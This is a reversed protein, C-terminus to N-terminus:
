YHDLGARDATRKYVPYLAAMALLSAASAAVTALLRQEGTTVVSATAGEALVVGVTMIATYRWYPCGRIRDWNAAVMAVVGLLFELSTLQVVLALAIAVVFGLITGGARQLAKIWGDQLYPQMVVFYTMLLWAGAHALGRDVVIWASIGALLALIVGYAGARVPNMAEPAKHPIRRRVLAGLLVGFLAAAAVTLGVEFASADPPESVIFGVTIPVLTVASSIGALAAVGMGIGCGAMLLAAFIPSAAAPVALAAGVALALAALVAPRVPAITAAILGAMTALVLDGAVAGAGLSAALIAPAAALALLAVVAAGVKVPSPM